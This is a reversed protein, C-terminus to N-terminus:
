PAIEQAAARLYPVIRARTARSPNKTWHLGWVEQVVTALYLRLVETWAGPSVRSLVGRWAIALARYSLTHWSKTSNASVPLSGDPTLYVLTHPTERVCDAYSDLQGERDKDDIKNEILVLSHGLRVRLDPYIRRQTRGHRYEPHIDVIAHALDKSRVEVECLRLMSALLSQGLLGSCRPNILRGLAQTHLVESRPRSIVGLLHVGLAAPDSGLDILPVLRDYADADAFASSTLTAWRSEVFAVLGAEPRVVTWVQLLDGRLRAFAASPNPCEEELTSAADRMLQRLRHAKMVDFRPSKTTEARERQSRLARAQIVPGTRQVCASGPREGRANRPPIPSRQHPATSTRAHNSGAPPRPSRRAASCPRTPRPGRATRTLQTPAASSM